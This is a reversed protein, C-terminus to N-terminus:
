TAAASATGAVKPKLADVTERRKMWALAAWSWANWSRSRAAKSMTARSSSPFVKARSRMTIASPTVSVPSFTTRPNTCVAVSFSRTQAAKRRWRTSRPRRTAWPSRTTRSPALPRRAGGDRADEPGLRGDLPALPVLPLVDDGVQRLLQLLRPAALELGGVLQGGVDLGLGGEPAAARFEVEQVLRRHPTEVFSQLLRQREM